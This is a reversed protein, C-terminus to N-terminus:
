IMNKQIELDNFYNLKFEELLSVDDIYIGDSSIVVDHKNTILSENIGYSSYFYNLAIFIDGENDYAIYPTFNDINLEKIIKQAIKSQNTKSKENELQFLKSFIEDSIQATIKKQM